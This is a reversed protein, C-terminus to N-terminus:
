GSSARRQSAVAAVTSAKGCDDGVQFQLVGGGATEVTGIAMELEEADDQGGFRAESKM